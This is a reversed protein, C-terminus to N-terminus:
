CIQISDVINQKETQQGLLFKHTEVFNVRQGLLVKSPTVINIEAHVIPYGKIKGSFTNRNAM